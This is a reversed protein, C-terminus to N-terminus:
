SLATSPLPISFLHVFQASTKRECHCRLVMVQYSILNWSNRSPFTTYTFKFFYYYFFLGWYTIKWKQDAGSCTVTVLPYGEYFMWQECIINLSRLTIIFSLPMKFYMWSCSFPATITIYFHLVKLSYICPSATTCCRFFCMLSIWWRM